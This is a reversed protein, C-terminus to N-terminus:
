DFYHEPYGHLKLYDAWEEMREYVEDRKRFKSSPMVNLHPFDGISRMHRRTGDTVFGNEDLYVPKMGSIHVTVLVKGSSSHIAERRFRFKMLSKVKEPM